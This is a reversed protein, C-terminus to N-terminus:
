DYVSVAMCLRWSLSIKYNIMELNSLYETPNPKPETLFVVIGLSSNKLSGFKIELKINIKCADDAQLSSTGKGIGIHM